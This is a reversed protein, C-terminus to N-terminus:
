SRHFTTTVLTSTKEVVGKATREYRSETLTVTSREVYRDAELFTGAPELGEIWLEKAIEHDMM